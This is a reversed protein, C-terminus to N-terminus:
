VEKKLPNLVKLKLEEARKMIELRKKKGVKSAIRVAQKQPNIKELDKVNFVLIEEFGSPHLGKVEKPSGYGPKPLNGAERKHKRLQSHIGRPTRWKLGLRKYIGGRKRLFEPKKRKIKLRLKLKNM